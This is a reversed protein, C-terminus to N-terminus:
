KREIAQTIKKSKHHNLFAAKELREYPWVYLLDRNKEIYDIGNVKERKIQRM